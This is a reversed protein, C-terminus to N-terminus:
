TTRRGVRRDMHTKKKGMGLKVKSSIIKHVIGRDIRERLSPNYIGDLKKLMDKDCVENRTKTDQHKDYCLDHNYTVEDVRNIPKSWPKPTRDLNLRKDLRTGPGRFSHGPLHLEFPLKNVMTNLIGAGSKVFQTKTIGCIRCTGRNMLRGNKSTVRATNITETLRKCKVCYM